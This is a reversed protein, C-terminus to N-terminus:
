LRQLHLIVCIRMSIHKLALEYGMLLLSCSDIHCMIYESSGCTNGSYGDACDCTCTAENLTGGNQCTLACALITLFHSLILPDDNIEYIM